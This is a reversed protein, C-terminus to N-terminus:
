CILIYMGNIAGAVLVIAITMLNVATFINNLFSSEKVGFALLAALLLIVGMALFDPYKALFDVHIPITELLAESM